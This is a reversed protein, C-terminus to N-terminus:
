KIRPVNIHACPLFLPSTESCLHFGHLATKLKNLICSSSPLSPMIFLPVSYVIVWSGLLDLSKLCCCSITHMENHVVFLLLHFLTWTIYPRIFRSRMLSHLACLTSHFFVVHSKIKLFGNQIWCTPCVPFPGLPISPPWERTGRSVHYLTWWRPFLHRELSISGLITAVLLM